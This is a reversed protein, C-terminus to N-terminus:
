LAITYGCHTVSMRRHTIKNQPVIDNGTKVTHVDHSPFVTDGLSSM